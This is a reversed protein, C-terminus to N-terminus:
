GGRGGGEDGTRGGRGGEKKDKKGGGRVKLSDIHPKIQGDAALDLVHIEELTQLEKGPVAM